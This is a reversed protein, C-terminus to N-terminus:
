RTGSSATARGTLGRYALVFAVTQVAGVLPGVVVDDIPSFIAFPLSVIVGLVLLGILTTWSRGVLTWSRRCAESVDTRDVILAMPVFFLRFAVYAYVLAAVVLLAIGAPPFSKADWEFAIAVLVPIGFALEFLLLPGLRVATRRVAERWSARGELAADVFAIALGFVVTDFAVALMVLGGHMRLTALVGAGSDLIAAVGGNIVANTVGTWLITPHERAFRVARRALDAARMEGVASASAPLEPEPVAVAEADDAPPESEILERAEELRDVPVHVAFGMQPYVSSGLPTLRSPIGRGELMALVTRADVEIASEYCAM